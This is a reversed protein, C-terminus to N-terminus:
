GYRGVQVAVVTNAPAFVKVVNGNMPFPLYSTTGSRCVFGVSASPTTGDVTARARYTTYDTPGTNDVDVMVFDGVESLTFPLVGDAGLQDPSHEVASFDDRAPVRNAKTADVPGPVGGRHLGLINLVNM